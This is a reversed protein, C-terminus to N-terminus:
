PNPPESSALADHLRQSTDAPLDGIPLYVTQICPTFVYAFNVPRLALARHESDLWFDFYIPQSYPFDCNSSPNQLAALYITELARSSLPYNPSHSEKMRELLSKPLLNQWDVQKGTALDFTLPYQSYFPHAAGICNGSDTVFLSLFAQNHFAVKISREVDCDGGDLEHLAQNDLKTLKANVTQAATDNSTLKPFAAINEAVPFPSTLRTEASVAEPALLSCCFSLFIARM